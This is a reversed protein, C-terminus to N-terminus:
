KKKNGRRSIIKKQKRIEKQNKDQNRVVNGEFKEDGVKM